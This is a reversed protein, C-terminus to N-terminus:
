FFMDFSRLHVLLIADNTGNRWKRSNIWQKMGDCESVVPVVVAGGAVVDDDLVAEEHVIGFFTFNPLNDLKSNKGM